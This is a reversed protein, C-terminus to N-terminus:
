GYEFTGSGVLRDRAYIKLQPPNSRDTSSYQWGRSDVLAFDFVIVGGKRTAKVTATLPAGIDLRQTQGATIVFQRFAPSSSRNSPGEVGGELIIRQLNYQGAPLSATPGPHDLVHQQGQGDVLELRQVGKGAIELTGTPGGPAAAPPAPEARATAAFLCSATAWSLMIWSLRQMTTVAQWL